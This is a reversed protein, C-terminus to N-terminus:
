SKQYFISYLINKPEISQADIPSAKKRAPRNITATIALIKIGIIM